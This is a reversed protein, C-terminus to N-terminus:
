VRATLQKQSNGTVLKSQDPTLPPDPTIPDIKKDAEDSLGGAVPAPIGGELFV